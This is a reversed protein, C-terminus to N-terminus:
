QDTNCNNLTIDSPILQVQFSQEFATMLMASAQDFSLNVGLAELSTGTPLHKETTPFSTLPISGHQFLYERSRRQANGGIKRGNITIDYQVLGQQCYDRDPTVTINREGAFAPNLGLSSYFHLLFSCIKKYTEKVTLPGWYDAPVLLSYSIDNGHFLLGGGTIRKAASSSFESLHCFTALEQSIGITYSKEWSYLRLVPLDSKRYSKTLLADIRCNEEASRKGTLLLRVQKRSSVVVYNWNERIGDTDFENYIFYRMYLDIVNQKEFKVKPQIKQAIEELLPTFYSIVWRFFSM